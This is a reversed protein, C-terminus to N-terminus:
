AFQTYICYLSENHSCNSSLSYKFLYAVVNNEICSKIASLTSASNQEYYKTFSYVVYLFHTKTIMAMRYCYLGFGYETRLQAESSLNSQKHLQGLIVFFFFLRMRAQLLHPSSQKTPRQQVVVIVYMIIFFPVIINYWLTCSSTGSM